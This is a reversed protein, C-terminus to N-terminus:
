ESYLKRTADIAMRQGLEAPRAAPDFPDPPGQDILLDRAPNMNASMAALVGQHNHVDVDHDVVVLTKAFMMPRLGWAAHAARRGQGAHSKRISLSAWYRAAAFEPMDYDVLEPMALRALPLFARQMARAVTVAEHPPFGPIMVTYIPNARQTVATVHMVPAPFTPTAYGLPGCLPGATTPPEAPDIYGELVIEAEAPVMLDIGRCAVVDLPKQRLLGALACVDANAPLPAAAALLFAPDGGIVVALPMKQNRTRYDALLRAHDDHAAWCVAMRAADIRQLDFRGAVTRHSDPEASFVVASTIARMPLPLPVSSTTPSVNERPHSTTGVVVETGTPASPVCAPCALLPLENLDIDSGLRVIQQCAASKVERPMVSSIAAPQSGSKLREFWGEPSSVDVLRAIRQALEDLTPIGLARCIRADTALLNALLPLDHGKIAGFLTAQGGALASQAAIKPLESAPDVDNDVRTLEGAHSLEELFDALCRYPMAANYTPIASPPLGFPQPSRLSACRLPNLM